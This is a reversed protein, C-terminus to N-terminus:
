IVGKKAAIKKMKAECLKWTVKKMYEPDLPSNSIGTAIIANMYLDASDIDDIALFYRCMTIYFVHAEAMYFKERDPYLEHLDMKGKFIHPVKEPKGDQLYVEAMGTMAFLYYPFREYIRINLEEAELLMDEVLYASLLMSYFVAKDPYKVIVKGLRKIAKAGEDDLLLESIKDYENELEKTDLRNYEHIVVDKTIEYDKGIRSNEILEKGEPTRIDADYAKNAMKLVRNFARQAAKSFDKDTLDDEDPDEDDFEDENFDDEDDDFEDDEFDEDDGDFDEDDFEDGEAVVVKFNGEGATRKLIAINRGITSPEDFPGQVYCPMGDLGFEIEMLPVQEDDEELIFQSVAFDKHPKFGYDEAYAIAGFIINHALAYECREFDGLNIKSYVFQDYEANFSYSTDKLGLCYLDVLYIGFTVNGTKHERTIFITCIGTTEWDGTIFCGGVPLLRAQNKIYNEPSFSKPKLSVIKNKKGKAV